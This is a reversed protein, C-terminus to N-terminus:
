IAELSLWKKILEGASMIILHGTKCVSYMAIIKISISTIIFDNAELKFIIQAITFSSLM